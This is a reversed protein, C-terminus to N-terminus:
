RDVVFWCFQGRWRCWCMVDGTRGWRPREPSMRMPWVCGMASVAVSVPPLLVVVDLDANWDADLVDFLAAAEQDVGGRDFRDEASSAPCVALALGAVCELLLGSPPSQDVVGAVYTGRRRGHGRVQGLLSGLSGGGTSPAGGTDAARLGGAQGVSGDLDRVQRVAPQARVADFGRVGLQLGFAV